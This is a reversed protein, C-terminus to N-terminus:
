RRTAPMAEMESVLQEMAAIQEQIGEGTYLMEIKLHHCIQQVKTRLAVSEKSDIFAMIRAEEGKVVFFGLDNQYDGTKYLFPEFSAFTGEAVKASYFRIAEAFVDVAVKERGPFVGGFHVVLGVEM